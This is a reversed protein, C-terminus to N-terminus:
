FINAKFIGRAGKQLPPFVAAANPHSQVASGNALPSPLPSHARDGEKGPLRSNKQGGTEPPLAAAKTPTADQRSAMSAPLREWLSCEMGGSATLLEPLRMKDKADVICALGAIKALAQPDTAAYCGTAAVRAGPNEQITRRLAQRSQMGARQTVACTNVICLDAAEGVAAPKWQADALRDAIAESEAQNVKCGLTIIKFKPM